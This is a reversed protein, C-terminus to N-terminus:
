YNQTWNSDDDDTSPDNSGTYKEMVLDITDDADSSSWVEFEVSDGAKLTYQSPFVITEGNVKVVANAEGDALKIRYDGDESATFTAKVCKNAPVAVANAGLNLTVPDPDAEVGEKTVTFTIDEESGYTMTSLLFTFTESEALTVSYPFGVWEIGYPDEISMDANESETSFTYTGAETATFSVTVGDYNAHVTNNGLQATAPPAVYEEVLIRTNLASGDTTTVVLQSAQIWNSFTVVDGNNITAGEFTVSLNTITPDWEVKFDGVLRYGQMDTPNEIIVSEGAPIEVYTAVGDTFTVKAPAKAVNLVLDTIAVDGNNEVVVYITSGDNVLEFTGEVSYNAGGYDDVGCYVFVSYNNNDWTLTYNGNLTTQFYVVEGAGISSITNDGLALETYTTTVCAVNVSITEASLSNVIFMIEGAAAMDISIAGAADLSAPNTTALDSNVYVYDVDTGVVTFTYKGAKDAYFKYEAEVNAPLTVSNDGLALSAYEYESCTFTFNDLASGDVTEISWDGSYDNIFKSGSAYEYGYSDKIVVNANDWTICYEGYYGLSYFTLAYVRDAKLSVTNEGLSAEIEYSVTEITVTATTADAVDSKAIINIEEDTALYKETETVWTNGGDVSITENEGASFLYYGASPARFLVSEDVNVTNADVALSPALYSVRITDTIPGTADSSYFKGYVQFEQGAELTYTSSTTYDYSIWGYNEDYVGFTLCAEVAYPDIAEAAAANVFTFKYDGAKDAVFKYETDEQPNLTVETEGLNIPTAVAESITYNFVFSEGASQAQIYFQVTEGEALEVVKSPSTLDYAYDIYSGIEETWDDSWITREYESGYGIGETTSFIRWKGASPATFSVPIHANGLLTLSGETTGTLDIPLIEYIAYTVEVDSSDGNAYYKVFIETPSNADTVEFLYTSIEGGSLPGFSAAESAGKIIYLGTPLTVSISVAASSQDKATVTDSEVFRYYAQTVTVTRDRNIASVKYTYVVNDGSVEESVYVAGNVVIFIDKSATLTFVVDKGEEATLEGDVTVGAPKNVTVTYKTAEVEGGDEGGDEEGGDEEGGDEEGGDEKPSSETPSSSEAPSSSPQEESCATATALGACMVLATCLIALKKFKAM